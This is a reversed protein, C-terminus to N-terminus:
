DRGKKQKKGPHAGTRPGPGPWQLARPDRKGLQLATLTGGRVAATDIPPVGHVIFLGLPSWHGCVTKLDREARGPVEYWPYLGPQQTGPATKEEFAIRGRPTCYRM